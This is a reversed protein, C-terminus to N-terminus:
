GLAQRRAKREQRSRDKAMNSQTAADIHKTTDRQVEAERVHRSPEPICVLCCTKTKTKQLINKNKDERFYKVM